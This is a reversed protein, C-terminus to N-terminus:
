LERILSIIEYLDEKSGTIKVDTGIGLVLESLETNLARLASLDIPALPYLEIRNIIGDITAHLRGFITCVEMTHTPLVGEVGTLRAIYQKIIRLDLCMVRAEYRTVRETLKRQLVLYGMGILILLVCSVDVYTYDIM